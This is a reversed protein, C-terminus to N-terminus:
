YAQVVTLYSSPGTKDTGDVLKTFGTGEMSISYIHTQQLNDTASVIVNKGDSSLTGDTGLKLFEPLEIPLKIYNTGDDRATWYEVTGDDKQYLYLFRNKIPQYVQAQAEDQCSIQFLIVSLSFATLVLSSYFVKKM